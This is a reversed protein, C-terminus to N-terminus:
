AERVCECSACTIRSNLAVLYRGRMAMMPLRCCIHTWLSTRARAPAACFAAHM